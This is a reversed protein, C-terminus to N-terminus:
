TMIINSRLLYLTLKNPTYNYNTEEFVKKNNMSTFVYRFLILIPM